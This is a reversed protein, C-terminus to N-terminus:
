IKEDSKIQNVFLVYAGLFLVGTVFLIISKNLLTYGLNYYFLIISYIFSVIGMALTVKNNVLYSLVLILLGCSIAPAYLTPLLLVVAGAYVFGKQLNNDKIAYLPLIKTLTYVIALISTCSLVWSYNVYDESYYYYDQTIGSQFSAILACVLALHLPQYLRSFKRVRTIIFSEKVSMVTLVVALLSLYIYMVVYLVSSLYILCILSGFIIGFSLFSLLFSRNVVLIVIAAFLFILCVHKEDTKMQMLAIGFMCFGAMFASVSVTDVIVKNYAKNLAVSAGILGLGFILLAAESDYVGTLLLFGIFALTAFFGGLISLITISVTTKNEAAEATEAVVAQENLVLSEGETEKFQHILESVATKKNM